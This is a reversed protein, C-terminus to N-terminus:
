KNKGHVFYRDISSLTWKETRMIVLLFGIRKEDVVM